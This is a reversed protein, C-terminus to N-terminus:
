PVGPANGRLTASDTGLDQGDTGARRWPSHGALRFDGEAYHVFQSRFQASTPFQNGAPYRRAEGDAIVNRAITSGPFYASITDLGPGHDTGIMGFANHRALNNTYSFELVQPGEVQLIGSGNEQVITNHDIVIRRPGGNIMFAYGNGGWLRNDIQFLNHRITISQTQRSPFKDDVGLISVGAAVHRVINNEFVVDEVQCWRCNGDQNRVTFLIAFGSQAAEWNYQLVNHAIKVRRANKLELLNKVQWNEKRWLAPKSILNGTITIDAPVLDPISPDNGGFQINEASGELYNNTIVFPGPGNWGAIAQADQGVRKCESIHSGTVTTAASNLAVCRKAGVSPQGHIYCRDIVIDHPVQALTRQAASGSGLAVIEGDGSGGGQIELLVLKWHHAGPATQLVPQDNPSQLKPLKGSWRPDVRIGEPGVMSAPRITIWEAGGKDPLTFNGVYTAGPQLTISDGPRANLIASNLDGGRPVFITEAASDRGTLLTAALGIATTIRRTHTM